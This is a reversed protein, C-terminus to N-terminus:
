MYLKRRLLSLKYQQNLRLFAAALKTFTVCLQDKSVLHTQHLKGTIMGIGSDNELSQYRDRELDRKM